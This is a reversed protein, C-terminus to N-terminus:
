IPVYVCSIFSPWHLFQLDSDSGEFQKLFFRQNSLTRVEEELRLVKEELQAIREEHSEIDRKAVESPIPFEEHRRKKPPIPNCIVPPHRSKVPISWPFITPILSKVTGESREFHLSCIRTNKSVSIPKKLYCVGNKYFWESAMLSYVNESSKPM